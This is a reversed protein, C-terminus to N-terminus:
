EGNKGLKEITERRFLLRGFELPVPVLVGRKVLRFVSSRHIGLIAAVEDVSLLIRVDNIATAM